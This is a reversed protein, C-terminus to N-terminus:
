FKVSMKVYLWSRDELRQDNPHMSPVAKEPFIRGFGARIGPSTDSNKESGKESRLLARLENGTAENSRNLATLNLSQPMQHRAAIKSQNARRAANAANRVILAKRSPASSIPAVHTTRTGIHTWNTQALGSTSAACAFALLCSAAKIFSRQIQHLRSDALSNNLRRRGPHQAAFSMSFPQLASPIGNRGSCTRPSPIGSGFSATQM